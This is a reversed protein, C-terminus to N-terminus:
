DNKNKKMDQLEVDEVNRALKSIMYDKTYPYSVICIQKLTEKNIVKSYIYGYPNIYIQACDIIYWGYNYINYYNM